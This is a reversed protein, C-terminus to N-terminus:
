PVSPVAPHLREFHLMEHHRRHHHYALGIFATALGVLCMATLFVLVFVLPRDMESLRLQIVAGQATRELGVTQGYRMGFGIATLGLGIMAGATIIAGCLARM